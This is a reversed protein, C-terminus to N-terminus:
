FTPFWEIGQFDTVKQEVPNGNELFGRAEAIEVCKQELHKDFLVGPPPHVIRMAEMAISRAAEMPIKYHVRLRSELMKSRTPISEVIECHNSVVSGEKSCESASSHGSLSMSRLMSSFSDHGSNRRHCNNDRTLEKEGDNWSQYIIDDLSLSGEMSKHDSAGGNNMATQSTPSVEPFMHYSSSSFAPKKGQYMVDHFSPAVFRTIEVPPELVKDGDVFNGRPSMPEDWECSSLSDQPMDMPQHDSAKHVRPVDGLVQMPTNLYFYEESRTDDFTTCTSADQQPNLKEWQKDLSLKLDDLSIGQPTIVYNQTQMPFPSNEKLKIEMLKMTSEFAIVKEAPLQPRKRPPQHRNLHQRGKHFCHGTRQGFLKLRYKVLDKFQHPEKIEIIEHEGAYVDAKSSDLENWLSKLTNIPKLSKLLKKAIMDGNEADDLIEHFFAVTKFFSNAMAPSSGTVANGHKENLNWMHRRLENKLTPPDRNDLFVNLALDAIALGYLPMEDGEFGYTNAQRIRDTAKETCRVIVLGRESEDPYEQQLRIHFAELALPKWVARRRNKFREKFEEKVERLIETAHTTREERAHTDALVIHWPKVFRFPPRNDKNAFM